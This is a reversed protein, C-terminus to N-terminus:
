SLLIGNAVLGATETRLIPLDLYIPNFKSQVAVEIEMKSFGGEPGILVLVKENPKIESKAKYINHSDKIERSHLILKLDADITLIEAFSVPPSLVPVTLREAQRSAEESIKIWRDFKNENFDKLKIISHDSEFFIFEAIGIETNMREIDDIKNARTLAQALIIYPKENEEEINENIIKAIIVEKSPMEIEGEYEHGEGDFVNIKDGKKLRLVHRIKLIDEPSKIYFKGKYINEKDLLFRNKAM